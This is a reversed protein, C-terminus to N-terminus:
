PAARRLALWGAGVLAVSAALPLGALLLLPPQDVVRALMAPGSDTVTVLATVVSPVLVALAIAVLVGRSGWRKGLAGGSLGFAWALLLFAASVLWQDVLPDVVLGALGFFVVSGGWGGTVEEVVALLVAALATLASMGTAVLVAALYFRRRSISLGAAFPWWTSIMQTAAVAAFIVLIVLGGTTLNIRGDILVSIVINVLLSFATIGWPLLVIARWNVLQLRAVAVVSSM